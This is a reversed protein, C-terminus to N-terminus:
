FLQAYKKGNDIKLAYISDIPADAVLDFNTYAFAEIQYQYSNEVPTFATPLREFYVFGDVFNENGFFDFFSTSKSERVTGGSLKFISSIKFDERSPTEELQYETFSHKEWWCSFENKGFYPLYEAYGHRLCDELKTQLKSEISGDLLMYCRYAPAVLIQEHVNLIGGDSNAYGVANNYKLMAKFFIGQSHLTRGKDNKEIPEIGIRLHKLKEYYEPLVGNKKHGPLGIIAGLVGLMAPKHIMNFTLYLDLTENSFPKKFFGFDSFFDVSIVKSM